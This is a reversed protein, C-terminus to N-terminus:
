LSFPETPGEELPPPGHRQVWSTSFRTLFELYDAFPLPHAYRLEDLERIDEATVPLEFDLPEPTSDSPEATRKSGM